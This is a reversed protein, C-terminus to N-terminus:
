IEEGEMSRQFDAMFASLVYPDINSHDFAVLLPIMQKGDQRFRKGFYFFPRGNKIASSHLQFGTFQLNPLNGVFWANQWYVPSLPTFVGDDFLKNQTARYIPFFEELKTNVFPELKLDAFRADGGIAVPSYLPLEDFIYWEDQIKRYRFYPHLKGAQVIHWMLYATFSAGEISRYQTNYIELAKSIDVQLTMQLYPEQVISTQHFFNLSWKEYTNREEESLKRGNYREIFEIEEREQM